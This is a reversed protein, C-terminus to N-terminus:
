QPLKEHQPARARPCRPKLLQPGCYTPVGTLLISFSIAAWELIRAQFTGHVSSGPLSCDMLDCLTLCPQTVESDEEKRGILIFGSYELLKRGGGGWSTNFM